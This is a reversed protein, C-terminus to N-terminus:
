EGTFDITNIGKFMKLVDFYLHVEPAESSNVIAETDFNLTLRRNNYVFPTGDIDKWGGIHYVMGKPNDTLVTEGSAGGISVDSQGEFKVGIYGSNWNWFMKNAPDLAGGAAGELVGDEDVGVTFSLKNYRGAPVNELEVAQSTADSEDILYYGKSDTASVSVEDEFYEGNPGELVIHSIYYRLLTVNFQQDMGNMLDYETDGITKLNLQRVIDNIIAVNDFELGVPGPEDVPDVSKDTCSAVLFLSFLIALLSINKM